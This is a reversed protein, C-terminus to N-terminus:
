DDEITFAPYITKSVTTGNNISYSVSKTAIISDFNVAKVHGDAWLVNITGLHRESIAGASGVFTRYSPDNTDVGVDRFTPGTNPSFGSVNDWSIWYTTAAAKRSDLVMVTTSPAAIRSLKMPTNRLFTGASTERYDSFPSNATDFGGNPGRYAANAAYHGWENSSAYSYKKFSTPQGPCNFVQESKIYPYTLDMWKFNDVRPGDTGGGCNGSNTADIGSQSYCSGDLYAPVMVEDYDQAYQMIGLGIQKLNSACSARRANERARAFVPFLIAALLAIIAIVVLLEILTFGGPKSQVAETRNLM